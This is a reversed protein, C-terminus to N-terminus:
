VHDVKLVVGVRGIEVPRITHLSISTKPIAQLSRGHPLYLRPVHDKAESSLL